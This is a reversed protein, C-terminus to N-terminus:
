KVDIYRLIDDHALEKTTKINIFIYTGKNDLNESLFIYEFKGGDIIKYCEFCINNIEVNNLKKIKLAFKSFNINKYQEYATPYKKNKFYKLWETRVAFEREDYDSKELVRISSNENEIISIGSANDEASNIQQQSIIDSNIYIKYAYSPQKEGRFAFIYYKDNYYIRASIADVGDFLIDTPSQIQVTEVKMAVAKEYQINQVYDTAGSFALTLITVVSVIIIFLITTKKLKKKRNRKSPTYHIHTPCSTKETNVVTTADDNSFDVVPTGCYPCRTSNDDISCLCIQCQLM